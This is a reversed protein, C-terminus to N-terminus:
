CGGGSNPSVISFVATGDAPLPPAFPGSICGGSPVSWFSGAMGVLDAYTPIGTQGTVLWMTVLSASAHALPVYGALAAPLPPATITNSAGAPAVVTWYGSAAGGEPLTGSWTAQAVVGTVGTPSAPTTTWSLVPQGATPVSVSASDLSAVSALNSADITMTGSATPSPIRTAVLQEFGDPGFDAEGQAFDAFGPHANYPGGWLPLLVGDVAEEYYSGQVIAGSDGTDVNVNETFVGTNWPGPVQIDLVGADDLPSLPQDKVSAWGEVTGGLTVSEVLTPLAAGTTSGYHGLGYPPQSNSLSLSEEFPVGPFQQTAFGGFYWYLEVGGDPLPSPVSTLKTAPTPASAWDPVVFSMGPTVGLVTFLNAAGATGMLVSVSGGAPVVLSAVGSGDTTPTGLVNGAGDQFVVPVGPEAGTAAIVTVTVPPTSPESVVDKVGADVIAVAEAPADLGTEPAQSSDPMSTDFAIVDESADFEAGGGGGSSQSFCAFVALPM